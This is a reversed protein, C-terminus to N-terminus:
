SRLTSAHYKGRKYDFLVRLVRLGYTMPNLYSVEDAYRTPVPHEGIALARAKASAIMELDFDFSKSLSHYDIASLARRSYLMYGSHYDSMGLDFVVNELRVLAQGALYKYLPMGGQLATKGTALRSGQLLDLSNKDMTALLEPLSEPAYQGDAHLCAVIDSGDIAAADLGRKMAVGYGSNHALEIVHILDNDEALSKCVQATDDLSGDNVIWIKSIIPALSDPIRRVVGPITQGANYAPIVISLKM